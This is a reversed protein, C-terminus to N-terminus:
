ARCTFRPERRSIQSCASTIWTCTHYTSPTQGGYWEAKPAAGIERLERLGKPAIFGRYFREMVDFRLGQDFILARDGDEIRIFNGGISRAGSLVKVEVM